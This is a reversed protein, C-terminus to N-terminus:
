YNLNLTTCDLNLYTAITSGNPVYPSQIAMFTGSVIGLQDASLTGLVYCGYYSTVSGDTHYGILVAPITGDIYGHGAFAGSENYHGYYGFVYVTDAYGSVFDAYPLRYDVPPAGNPKPGPIPQLWQAYADTYDRGNVLHYYNALTAQGKDLAAGGIGFPLTVAPLYCNVAMAANITPMDPLAAGIQSFSAGLLRWGAANQSIAFCGAFTQLTGDVHYGILEAPIRGLEGAPASAPAPQWDGLYPEVRETTLFGSAFDAYSQTPNLWYGYAQPYNRLSIASYYALIMAQPSQFNQAQAPTGNGFSAALMTAALGIAALIRAARVSTCRTFRRM